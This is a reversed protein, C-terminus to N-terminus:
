YPSTRRPAPRTCAAHGATLPGDELVATRTLWSKKRPATRVQFTFTHLQGPLAMEDGPSYNLFVVCIALSCLRYLLLVTPKVYPTGVRWLSQPLELTM